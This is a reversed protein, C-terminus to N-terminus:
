LPRDAGSNPSTLGLQVQRRALTARIQSAVWASRRNIQHWTFPMVVWGDATLEAQRAKDREIQEQRRGHDKFGECEVIVRERVRCFDPRYRGVTRQFEFEPLDYQKRLRAFRAELASDPPRQHLAWADIAARLKALGPRGRKSHRRVAAEADQITILRKTIMQELVTWTLEPDWAAVDLLTRTCRTRPVADHEDAGVLELNHTPRHIAVGIIPTPRPRGKTVVQIPDSWPVDVGLLFAASRGGAFVRDEGATPRSAEIAAAILLEPTEPDSALRSVGPRIAVLYGMAHAHRWAKRSMRAPVLKRRAFLGLEDAVARLDELRM